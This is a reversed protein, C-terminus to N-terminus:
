AGSQQQSSAPFELSDSRRHVDDKQRTNRDQGFCEPRRPLDEPRDLDALDTGAGVTM